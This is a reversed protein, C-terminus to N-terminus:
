CFCPGEEHSKEKKQSFCFFIWPLPFTRKPYQVIFHSSISYKKEIYLFFLCSIEM